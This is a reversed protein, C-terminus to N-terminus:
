VATGKVPPVPVPAFAVITTAFLAIADTVTVALPEPYTAPSIKDALTVLIPPAPEPKEMATLPYLLKIWKTPAPVVLIVADCPPPAVPVAVKGASTTLAKVIVAGAIM